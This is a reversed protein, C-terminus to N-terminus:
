RRREATGAHFVRSATSRLRTRRARRDAVGTEYAGPYGGRRSCSRSPRRRRGSRGERRGLRGDACALLLERPGDAPAAHRGRDGSRRVPLQVRAGQARRRHADARRLPARPVRRGRAGDRRVTAACSRGLDRGRDARRRVAAALVRGDRRHEARHRRRRGAQLGPSLALPVVHGGDCLRSRRCRRGTSCSRWWARDRRGRRVRRGRARGPDGRRRGRPGDAVTVGKGAALGDAKVVARGGLEDVFAVAPDSRPSRGALSRHPHRPAGDREKAWAKSGEIRAADRAPGFVLAGVRRAARRGPRGRAAGRARGGHPRHREREVLAVIGPVDDAACTSAARGVARHRRERARRAARDVLPSQALRWALAHERGGGGVVLVKMRGAPEARARSRDLRRSVPVGVLEELRHVYARAQKPLDEFSTAEDIEEMGATSSRTSPSPRTSSRSTRRSTTTCSATPATAPASGARDRVRSLVDLKTVFLERRAREAPGRVPRARRRVMRMPAQPRHRHRVGQGARGAARGGRRPGGDPVARRRRAHRLGERHRDRPRGGASRHRRSALAYGAVPNSSTVFPYTGHDLDLLTGQAGELMVHKGDQSAETSCRAPTPSTRSSSRRGADM